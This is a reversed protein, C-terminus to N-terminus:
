VKIAQKTIGLLDKHLTENSAGVFVRDNPLIDDRGDVNTFIGGAEHIILAGAFEPFTDKTFAVVGDARGCAVACYNVAMSYRNNEAEYDKLLETAREIVKPEKWALSPRLIIKSSENSVKIPQNNLFAGKGLYATFLENVTPDYVAAFVTKQNQVHAIVISYHPLGEIFNHTGSIPDVVWINEAEFFSDNEEEAYLLHQGPFQSIIEKVGREISLDEETLDSKTIGIDAVKGAKERLRGGADQMFELIKKYNDDM